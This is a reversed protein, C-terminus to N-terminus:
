TIKWQNWQIVNRVPSLVSFLSWCNAKRCRGISQFDQNIWKSLILTEDSQCSKGGFILRSRMPPEVHLFWATGIINTACPIKKLIENWMIKPELTLLRNYWICTSYCMKKKSFWTHIAWFIISQICNMERYRNCNILFGDNLMSFPHMQSIFIIFCISFLIQWTGGM